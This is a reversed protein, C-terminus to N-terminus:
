ISIQIKGPVVFFNHSKLGVAIDILSASPIM